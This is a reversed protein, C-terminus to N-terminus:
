VDCYYWYWIPLAWKGAKLGHKFERSTLPFSIIEDQGGSGEETLRPLVWVYKLILILFATVNAWKKFELLEYSKEKGTNNFNRSWWAAFFRATCSISFSGSARLRIKPRWTTPVERRKVVVCTTYGYHFSFFNEFVVFLVIAIFQQSYHIVAFLFM